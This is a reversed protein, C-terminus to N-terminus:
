LKYKIINIKMMNRFGDAPYIFAWKDGFAKFAKRRADKYDSAEFQMAHTFDFVTNDSMVHRHDSKSGFTTIFEKM